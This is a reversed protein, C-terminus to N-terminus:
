ARKRGLGPHLRGRRREAGARQGRRPQPALERHDVLGADGFDTFYNDVFENETSFDLNAGADSDINPNFSVGIMENGEFRNRDAEILQFGVGGNSFFENDKVLTGETGNILSLAAEGNNTFVNNRITNGNRGDDADNLEMGALMHGDLTLNHVVNFTTGGTLMVGYGFNKVTGNRIM